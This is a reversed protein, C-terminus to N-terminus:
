SISFFIEKKSWSPARDKMKGCFVILVSFVAMGIFTFWFIM